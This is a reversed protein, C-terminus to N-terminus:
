SDCDVNRMWIGLPANDLITQFLSREADLLQRSHLIEERIQNRETVDVHTGVMRAPRGQSDLQVVKGRCLVWKYSGDKCRLRQESVYQHSHEGNLYEDLHAMVRQREEPHLLDMPLTASMSLEDDAYGLMATYSKSANFHAMAIDWDWIADGAGELAIRWREDIVRQVQYEREREFQALKLAEYYWLAIFMVALCFSTFLLQFNTYGTEVGFVNPVALLIIISALVGSVGVRFDKLYFIAAAIPFFMVVRMTNFKLFLFAGVAVASWLLLAVTSVGSVKEPHRKLYVFLGLNLLSVVLNAVSNVRAPIWFYASLMLTTVIILVLSAELFAVHYKRSQDHTAFERKPFAMEFLNKNPM